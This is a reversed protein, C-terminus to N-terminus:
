IQAGKRGLKTWIQDVFERDRDTLKASERGAGTEKKLLRLRRRTEAPILTCRQFHNHLDKVKTPLSRKNLPFVRCFGLRGEAICHRCGFGSLGVPAAKRKGVKESELMHCVEVQSMLLYLYPSIAAKDSAHVLPEKTRSEDAMARVHEANTGFSQMRNAKELSEDTITIGYQANIMGIKEAAYAWYERSLSSSPIKHEQYDLFRKKLNPPLATCGAWHDRVMMTFSQYM